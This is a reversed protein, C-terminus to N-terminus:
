GEGYFSLLRCHPPSHQVVEWSLKLMADDPTTGNITFTERRSVWQDRPLAEVEAQMEASLPPLAPEAAETAPTEGAAAEAPAIAVNSVAAALGSDDNEDDTADGWKEGKKLTLSAM